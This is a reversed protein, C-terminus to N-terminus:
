AAVTQVYMSQAEQPNPCWVTSLQQQVHTQSHHLHKFDFHLQLMHEHRLVHNSSASVFDAATRCPSLGTLFPSQVSTITSPLITETATKELLRTHVADMPLRLACHYWQLVPVAHM